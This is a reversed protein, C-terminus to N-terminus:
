PSFRSSGQPSSSPLHSPGCGNRRTVPTVHATSAWPCLSGKRSRVWRALSLRRRLRGLRRCAETGRPPKNVLARLSNRWNLTTTAIKALGEPFAGGFPCGPDSLKMTVGMGPPKVVTIPSGVLSSPWHSRAARRGGGPSRAESMVEGSVRRRGAIVSGTRRAEGQGVGGLHGTPKTASPEAGPSREAM